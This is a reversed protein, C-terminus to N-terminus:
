LLHQQLKLNYIIVKPLLNSSLNFYKEDFFENIEKRLVLCLIYCIFMFFKKLIYDAKCTCNHQVSNEIIVEQCKWENILIYMFAYALASSLKLQCLVWIDNDHSKILVFESNECLFWEYEHM